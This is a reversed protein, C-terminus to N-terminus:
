ANARPPVGPAARRHAPAPPRPTGPPRPTSRGDGPWPQRGGGPAAGTFRRRAAFCARRLGARAIVFGISAAHWPRLGSPQGCYVPRVPVEVVRLGARAAAAILDNPYGYGRWLLSLDLRDLAAAALATYGCQSDRVRVGTALSTLASLVITGLLRRPALTSWLLAYGLRNGKVYDAQGWAVPRVVRVLDDPCMQGDGAMVALVDAGLARAEAYGRVIAAGVGRREPHRVVSLRWPGARGRALEATGDHSGDDVVVVHDVFAPMTDLVRGLWHRVNRAPVVVAISAQEFM